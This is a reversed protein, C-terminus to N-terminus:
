KTGARHKAWRLKQARSIANRAKASLKRRKRPAVNDQSGREAAALGPPRGPRGPKRGPKQGRGTIIYSANSGLASIANRVNSLQRALQEEEHRLTDLVDKLAM